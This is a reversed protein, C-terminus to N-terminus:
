FFFMLNFFNLTDNDLEPDLLHKDFFIKFIKISYSKNKLMVILDKFHLYNFFLILIVYLFEKITSKEYLTILWHLFIM